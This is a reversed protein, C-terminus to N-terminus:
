RSSGSSAISLKTMARGHGGVESATTHGGQSKGEAKRQQAPAARARGLTPPDACRQDRRTTASRM